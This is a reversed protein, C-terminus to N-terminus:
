RLTMISYLIKMELNINAIYQLM